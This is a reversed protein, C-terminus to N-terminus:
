TFLAAGLFLKNLLIRKKAKNQGKPVWAAIHMTCSPKFAKIYNKTFRKSMIKEGKINLSQNNSSTQVPVVMAVEADVHGGTM